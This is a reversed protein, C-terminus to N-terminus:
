LDYDLSRLGETYAEKAAKAKEEAEKEKFGAQDWLDWAHISHDPTALAEEARIAAVWQNTAEKYLAQLRDLEARDITM